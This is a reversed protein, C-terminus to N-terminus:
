YAMWTFTWQSLASYGTAAVAAFTLLALVQGLARRPSRDLTQHNRAALSLLLVGFGAILTLQILGLSWAIDAFAARRDASFSRMRIMERWPLYKSDTWQVPIWSYMRGRLASYGFTGITTAMAVIPLSGLLAWLGSTSLSSVWMATACLMALGLAFDTGIKFTDAPRHIATLLMPLGFSLVLAVGITVTVKILWQVRMNRPQLLQSALAGTQREEASALAGAILPVCYAHITSLAGFTPGMYLPHRAALIMVAEAALVYLGSMAFTMHQLRLEKKVILWLWPRRVTPSYTVTATEAPTAIAAARATGGGGDGAVQLRRFGLFLAATGAASTALTGYWTVAWAGDGADAPYLREGILLLLIPITLSFVLGGLVRRSLVTLVPTLGIGAVVPGWILLRRAMVDVLLYGDPYLVNAIVGLTGLATALVIMKLLLVKLRDLPQVLLAALTGHSLEQGVSLAGIALAGMAYATMFLASLEQYNRSNAHSNVLAALAGSAIAVGITWPLLARVEKRTQVALATSM